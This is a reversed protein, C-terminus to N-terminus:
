SGTSTYHRVGFHWVRVTVLLFVAGVAPAMWYVFAPAGGAGVRGLLAQSPLYNVCALPVVFTFFLRFWPRYVTLPYQATEVGGYTLINAIELSEITWFTLTGQLIFLGSFFCAGGAVAALVLAGKAPTWAVGCSWAGWVLVAAGQMLRGARRLTLEQAAIQLVTGRPRLLVRDFDGNRIMGALLDFGRSFADALAFAINVLGYLVAAEPLTWGRLSGFRAFLAWVGLFEIGTVVFHGLTQMIFSARYQMQSRASIGLYRVYLRLADAM